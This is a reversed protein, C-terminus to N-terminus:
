ELINTIARMNDLSAKEPDGIKEYAVARNSYYKSKPSIEIAKTFDGIAKEYNELKFYAMGRNYYCVGIDRIGKDELNIAKDYLEIAEEYEGLDYLELGENNYKESIEQWDKDLLSVVTVGSITCFTTIITIIFACRKVISKRDGSKTKNGDRNSNDFNIIKAM